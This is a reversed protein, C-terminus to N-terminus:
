MPAPPAGCRRRSAIRLKIRQGQVPDAQRDARGSREVAGMKLPERCDGLAELRGENGLVECPRGMLAREEVIEQGQGIGVFRERAHRLMDVLRLVCKTAGDQEFIGRGINDERFARPRLRIEQALDRAAGAAAKQEVDAIHEDARDIMAEIGVAIEGVKRQLRHAFDMERAAGVVAVIGAQRQEDVGVIRRNTVGHPGKIGGDIRRSPAVGVSM